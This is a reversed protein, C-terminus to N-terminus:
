RALAAEAQAAWEAGDADGAAARRRALELAQEFAARAAEAEGNIELAEGLVLRNLPHDPAREVARRAEALAAEPDGPGVPWGPARLLVLALVREPGGGDLGPESAAARRLLEVVQGVGGALAAAPRERLELGLAVALWYDCAASGPARAQCARGAEVAEAALPARREGGAEHEVLWASVRVAGTLGEIRAPEAQAAERYLALAQQVADRDPRRAFSAEAEALLAEVPRGPSEPTRISGLVPARVAPACAALVLLAAAARRM